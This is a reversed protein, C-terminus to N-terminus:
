AGRLVTEVLVSGIERNRGKKEGNVGELKFQRLEVYRYSKRGKRGVQARALGNKGGFKGTWQTKRM